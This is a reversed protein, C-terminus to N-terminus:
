ENEKAKQQALWNVEAEVLRLYSPVLQHISDAERDEGGLALLGPRTTQFGNPMFIAHDPIKKLIDAKFTNLEPSIFTIKKNLKVLQDLWDALLINQDSIVIEGSADYLGAFVLGRRADFFPCILTDRGQAQLALTELSSIGVIPIKLSWAMTKAISLGIRVGTYSGPGKAIVIKSLDSPEVDANEMLQVIAPMLRTSHKKKNISIYEAIVHNEQALAIGLAESSTDIALITM